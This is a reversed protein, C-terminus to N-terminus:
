IYYGGGGTELRVKYKYRRNINPKREWSKRGVPKSMGFKVELVKLKKAKEPRREAHLFNM